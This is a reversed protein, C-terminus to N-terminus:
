LQDPVVEKSVNAVSWGVSWKAQVRYLSLIEDPGITLSPWREGKIIGDKAGFCHKWITDRSKPQNFLPKYQDIKINPVTQLQRINVQSLKGKVSEGGVLWCVM